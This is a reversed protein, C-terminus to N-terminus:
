AERLVQFANPMSTHDNRRKHFTFQLSPANGHTHDAATLPSSLFSLLPGPRLRTDEGLATLLHGPRRGTGLPKTVDMRRRQGIRGSSLLANSTMRGTPSQYGSRM